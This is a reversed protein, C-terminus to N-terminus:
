VQQLMGASSGFRLDRGDFVSEIHLRKLAPGGCGEIEVVDAYNLDLRDLRKSNVTIGRVADCSAENEDVWDGIQCSSGPHNPLGIGFGVRSQRVHNCRGVSDCAPAVGSSMDVEGSGHDEGIRRFPCEKKPTGKDDAGFMWSLFCNLAKRGCPREDHGVGYGIALCDSESVFMCGHGVDVIKKM